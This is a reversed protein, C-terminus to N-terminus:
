WLDTEKVEERRYLDIEEEKFEWHSEPFLKELCHDDPSMGIGNHGNNWTRDICLCRASGYKSYASLVVFIQGLSVDPFWESYGKENVKVYDGIKYKYIM